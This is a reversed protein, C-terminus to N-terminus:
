KRCSPSKTKSSTKIISWVYYRKNIRNRYRCYTNLTNMNEKVLFNFRYKEYIFENLNAKQNKFFRINRAYHFFNQEINYAYRYTYM